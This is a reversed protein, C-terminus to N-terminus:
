ISYSAHEPKVESRAFSLTLHHSVCNLRRNTHIPKWHPLWHRARLEIRQGAFDERQFPLKIGYNQGVIILYGLNLVHRIIDAIRETKRLLRRLSIRVHDNETSHM